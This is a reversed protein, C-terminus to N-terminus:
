RRSHRDLANERAHRQWCEGEHGQEFRLSTPFTNPAEVTFTATTFAQGVAVTASNKKISDVLFFARLAVATLTSFISRQERAAIKM